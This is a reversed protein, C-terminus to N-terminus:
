LKNRDKIQYYLDVSTKVAKILIYTGFVIKVALAIKDSKITNPKLIKNMTNLNM